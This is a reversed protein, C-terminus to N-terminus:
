KSIQLPIAEVKVSSIDVSGNLPALGIFDTGGAGNPQRPNYTFSYPAFEDTMDFTQWGSNGDTATSYAVRLSTNEPARATVTVRATNEAAALEFDQALFIYAGETAGSSQIDSPFAALSVFDDEELHTLAGKHGRIRRKLDDAQLSVEALITESPTEAASSNVESSPQETTTPLINDCGSLVLSGLCVCIFGSKRM